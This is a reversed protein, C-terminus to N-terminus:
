WQSRMEGVISRALTEISGQEGREIRERAPFAPAFAGVGRYNRRAILTEGTRNDTWSFEVTIVLAMEEVLGSDRDTGLKSRGVRTIVGTLTTDAADRRTIRWPTSRAIEKAIAESLLAELGYSFTRNDFMPVAVTRISDDYARGFRYGSSADSACGAILLSFLTLALCPLLAAKM